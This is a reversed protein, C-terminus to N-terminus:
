PELSSQCLFVKISKRIAATREVRRLAEVERGGSLPRASRLLRSMRRWRVCYTFLVATVGCLCIAGLFLPLWQPLSSAALPAATASPIAPSPQAFPRSVETVVYHVKAQAGGNTGPRAFFSGLAVLCSFPVLFKVSAALLMWYRVRAKDKRLVFALLGAVLAFLTSQWLHNGVAPGVITLSSSMFRLMM